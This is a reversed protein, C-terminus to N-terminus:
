FVETSFILFLFYTRSHLPISKYVNLQIGLIWLKFLALLPAPRVVLKGPPARKIALSMPWLQNSSQHPGAKDKCESSFHLCVQEGLTPPM